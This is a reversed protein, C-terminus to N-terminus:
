STFIQRIETAGEWAPWHKQHVENFRRTWDVAEELTNVEYIAYAAVTAAPQTYGNTVTVEGGAVTVKISAATPALGGTEVLVGKARAEEGLQGLAVFLEAPPNGFDGSPELLTMVRM